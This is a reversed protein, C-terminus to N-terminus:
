LASRVVGVLATSLIALDPLGGRDTVTVTVKEKGVLRKWDSVLLDYLRDAPAGTLDYCVAYVRGTKAAAVRIHKLVQDSSQLLERNTM